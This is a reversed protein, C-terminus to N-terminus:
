RKALWVPYYTTTMEWLYLFEQTTADTPGVDAIIHSIPIQEKLIDIGYGDLLTGAYNRTYGYWMALHGGASRGRIAMKSSETKIGDAEMQAKLACVASHVDNLMDFINVKGQLLENLPMNNQLDSIEEIALLMTYINLFIEEAIDSDDESEDSSGGVTNQVIDVIQGVINGGDLPIGNIQSEIESFIEPDQLTDSIIQLIEAIIMPDQL